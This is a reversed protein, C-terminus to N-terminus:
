DLKKKLLLNYIRVNKKFELNRQTRDGSRPNHMVHFVGTSFIPIVYKGLAILSAGLFTDEMGWGKFIPNFGGCELFDKKKVSVSHTIVMSPLDWIGLVKDMGFNKFEDTDNVISFIGYQNEKKSRHLRTWDKGIEKFFRPDKKIDPKNREFVFKIIDRDEIKVNDRFGVFVSEDTLEHRIMHERIFHEELLIDSDIFILIEGCAIRAGSNRASSRGLNKTKIYVVRFDFSYKELELFTGDTSGDDVIIVELLEFEEKTIKQLSISFLVGAITNKSNFSPIIISVSKSFKIIDIPTWSNIYIGYKQYFKKAVLSYDNSKTKLISKINVGAKETKKNTTDLSGTALYKKKVVFINIDNFACM